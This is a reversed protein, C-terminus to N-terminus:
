AFTWGIALALFVIKGWFLWIVQYLHDLLSPLWKEWPVVVSVFWWSFGCFIMRRLLGICPLENFIVNKTFMFFTLIRFHEPLSLCDIDPLRDVLWLLSDCTQLFLFSPSGLDNVEAESRMSCSIPAFIFLQLQVDRRSQVKHFHHRVFPWLVSRSSFLLSTVSSFHDHIERVRVESFCESWILSPLRLFRLLLGIMRGVDVEWVLPITKIVVLVFAHHDLVFSFLRSVNM